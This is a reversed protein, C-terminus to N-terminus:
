NLARYAITDNASLGIKYQHGVLLKLADEYDQPSLHLHEFRVIAPRWRDFDFIRLIEADYGEADIQLLDVTVATVQEVRILAEPDAAGRLGQLLVNKDFSATGMLWDPGTVDPKISYINLVGESRAIAVNVFTFGELGYRAAYNQRLREFMDPRPEILVGRMHYREILPFLSDGMVGDCAGVQVFRINSNRRAYHALVADLLDLESDENMVLVAPWGLRYERKLMELVQKRLSTPVLKIIKRLTGL